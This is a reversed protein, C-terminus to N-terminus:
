PFLPPTIPKAAELSAIGEGGVKAFKRCANRLKELFLSADKQGAERAGDINQELLAMFPEDLENEAAMQLIMAKKDPASLLKRLRDAPATLQAVAADAKAAGAEAVVMLGELEAVRDESSRPSFKEDRIANRLHDFFAQTLHPRCRVLEFDMEDATTSLLISVPLIRKGLLSTKNSTAEDATFMIRGARSM